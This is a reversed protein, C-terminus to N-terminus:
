EAAKQARALQKQKYAEDEKRMRAKRQRSEAECFAEILMDAFQQQKPTLNNKNM